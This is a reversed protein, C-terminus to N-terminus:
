KVKQRQKKRTESEPVGELRNFAGIQDRLVRRRVEQVEGPQLDGLRFPGFSIRILRNVKLGVSDLARRIERNRGQRLGVTLWSNGGKRSDIEVDIPGFRVGDVTMGSSLGKLRTEDPEGFARVRYKRMWGTSPHELWRKLGGDNTLLLLGESNLDLRGVPMVRPMHPPLRDFVTSRGKEDRASTVLGVPKHHRWLRPPERRPIPRGDVSIRDRDSVNFAPSSIVQGNVAVRGEVIMREAGRRSEVGARAMVKAVRQSNSESDSMAGHICGAGM